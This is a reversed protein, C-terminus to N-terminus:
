SKFTRTVGSELQWLARALVQKSCHRSYTLWLQDGGFASTAVRVQAVSEKTDRALRKVESMFTETGQVFEQVKRVREFVGDIREGTTEKYKRYERTLSSLDMAVQSIHKPTGHHLRNEAEEKLKDIQAYLDKM